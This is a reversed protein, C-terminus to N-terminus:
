YTFTIDEDQVNNGLDGWQAIDKDTIKLLEVVQNLREVRGHRTNVFHGFM